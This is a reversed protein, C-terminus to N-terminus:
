VDGPKECSVLLSYHIYGACVGRVEMNKDIVLTARAGELISFSYITRNTCRNKHDTVKKNCPTGQISTLWHKPVWFFHGKRRFLPDTSIVFVFIIHVNKRSWIKRERFPAQPTGKISTDWLHSEVATHPPRKELTASTRSFIKGKEKLLPPHPPLFFPFQFSHTQRFANEAFIGRM